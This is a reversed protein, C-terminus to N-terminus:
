AKKQVNLLLLEVYNAATPNQPDYFAFHIGKVDKCVTGWDSRFVGGQKVTTTFTIEVWDTLGTTAKIVDTYGYGSGSGFLIGYDALMLRTYYDPTGSTYSYRYRLTVEVTDGVAYEDGLAFVHAEGAGTVNEYRTVETISIEVYNAASNMYYTMFHLGKVDKCAYSDRFTGGKKVQTVFTIEIWDTVGTTAKFADAHGFHSGGGLLVYGAPLMLRSYETPTGDTYNYRYKLTVQVNDGVAYDDGLEYAQATGVPNGGQVMMYGPIKEVEVLELEIYNDTTANLPDYFMFHLGKIDNCQLGESERFWGGKTVQTTFSLKKWGSEGEEVVDSVGLHNPTGVIIFNNPLILRTYDNPAGNTYSSRYRLIVDVTDGVAYEDGLAIQSGTNGSLRLAKENKAVYLCLSKRQDKTYPSYKGENNAYKDDVEVLYPYKKADYTDSVDNYAETAVETINRSNHESSYETYYYNVANEVKYAIYGVASFDRNLNETKLNVLSGRYEYYGDTKATANNMFGENVVNQYTISNGDLSEFTMEVGATLYDSPLIITGTKVNDSGYYTLMANYFEYDVRTMFGIGTPESMRISAGDRMKLDAATFVPAVATEEASVDLPNKLAANGLLVCLGMMLSMSLIKTTKRM